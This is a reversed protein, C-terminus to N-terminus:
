VTADKQQRLDPLSYMDVLGREAVRRIYNDIGFKIVDDEASIQAMFRKNARFWAMEEQVLREWEKDTLCDFPSEKSSEYSM